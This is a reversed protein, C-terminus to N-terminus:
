FGQIIPVEYNYIDNRNYWIANDILAESTTLRQTVMVESSINFAQHRHFLVTLRMLNLEKERDTQNIAVRVDLHSDKTKSESTSMQDLNRRTRSAKTAQDATFVLCDLEGAVRSAKKWKRDIDIRQDKTGEDALIDLYDWMIIHPEWKTKDMYRRIYDYTEDFTAGYRPFCKIRINKLGRMSRNDIARVIRDETTERIRQRDFWIAPRFRKYKSANKRSEKGRCKTCVKWRRRHKMYSVVEGASRFLPRKNLMRQRVQCTGYQNNECDIVPNIIRGADFERATRSIRRWMRNRIMKKNLELNIILVRKKQNFAAQYGVENLVFSKSSKENGSIAVLWSKELPGVLRNLDGEFNFATDFKSNLRMGEEVDEETFPIITGLSEDEDLNKVPEYTTFVEEAEEFEMNDFRQQADELRQELNKQRIFGTLLEDIIYDADVNKYQAYESALRDLYAEVIEQAEENLRRKRNDYIQQITKKPAKEYKAYYRFLWQVVPRFYKTFHKTKLEKAKYRNYASALVTKNMIMNSVLSFESDSKVTQRTIM